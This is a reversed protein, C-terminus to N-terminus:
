RMAARTTVSVREVNRVRVFQHAAADIQAERM